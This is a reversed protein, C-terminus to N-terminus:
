RSGFKKGTTEVDFLIKIGNPFQVNSIVEEGCHPCTQKLTQQPNISINTVVQDMFKFFNIDWKKYDNYLKKMLKDFTTPDKSPKGIMWIAFKIFTEDIDKKRDREKERRAWDLIATECALTPTYLTITDHDVDYERPDISWVGDMWYNEILDDDPFEYHLNNSRLEFTITQDCESCDDEFNITKNNSAFTIERVKMILWFRDWSNVNSWSIVSSGDKIRVCLKIIENFVGNLQLLNEEDVSMWNKIAQVTAPRIYFEWTAPYFKSRIGFESRDLPIWGDAVSASDDFVERDGQLSRVNDPTRQGRENSRKLFANMEESEAKSLDERGGYSRKHELKGLGKNDDGGLDGIQSALADYEDNTKKAM